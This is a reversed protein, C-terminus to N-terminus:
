HIKEVGGCISNVRGTAKWSPPPTRKKRRKSVPNLIVYLVEGKVHSSFGRASLWCHGGSAEGDQCLNGCRCHSWRWWSCYVLLGPQSAAWNDWTWSNGTRCDCIFFSKRHTVLYWDISQCLYLCPHCPLSTRETQVAVIVASSAQSVFYFWFLQPCLCPGIM